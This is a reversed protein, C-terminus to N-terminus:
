DVTYVKIVSDSEKIRRGNCVDLAGLRCAKEYYKKAKDPNPQRHNEEEWYMGLRVCGFADDNDCARRM